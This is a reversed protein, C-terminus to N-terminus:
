IITSFLIHIKPKESIKTQFMERRLFISRYTILFPYQDEHLPDATRTLNYHFNIKRSLNEFFAGIDFKMFTTWHSILQEMRVSFRVFVVVSKTTNRLKAFADKLIVTVEQLVNHKM